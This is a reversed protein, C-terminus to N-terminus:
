RLSQLLVVLVLAGLEGFTEEGLGGQPTKVQQPQSLGLSVGGDWGTAATLVQIPGRLGSPGPFARMRQSVQVPILVNLLPVKTHLKFEGLFTGFRAVAAGCLDTFLLPRRRGIPRRWDAGFSPRGSRRYGGLQRQKGRTTHGLGGFRWLKEGARGWARRLRVSASVPDDPSM